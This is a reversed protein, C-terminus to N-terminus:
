TNSELNTNGQLQRALEECDQFGSSCEECERSEEKCDECSKLECECSEACVIKGGGVDSNISLDVSNEIVGNKGDNQIPFNIYVEGPYPKGLVSAPKHVLFYFAFFMFKLCDVLEM